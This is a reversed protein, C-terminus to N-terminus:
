FVARSLGGITGLLLPTVIAVIAPLGAGLLPDLRGASFAMGFFVSVVIVGFAFGALVGRLPSPAVMGVLCGGALLGLPHVTALALGMLVALVSFVRRLRKTNRVKSLSPEIM